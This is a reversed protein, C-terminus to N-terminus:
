TCAVQGIPTASQNLAQYSRLRLEGSCDPRAPRRITTLSPGAIGARRAHIPAECATQAGDDTRRFLSASTVPASLGCPLCLEPSRTAIELTVTVCLGKRHRAPM